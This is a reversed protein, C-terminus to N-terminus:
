QQIIKTRKIVMLTKVKIVSANIPTLSPQAENTQDTDDVHDDKYNNNPSKDM